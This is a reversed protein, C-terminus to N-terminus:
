RHRNHVLHRCLNIFRDMHRVTRFNPPLTVELLGSPACRTRDARFNLKWAVHRDLVATGTKFVFEAM